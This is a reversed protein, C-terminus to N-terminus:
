LMVNDKIGNGYGHGPLKETVHISFTANKSANGYHDYSTECGSKGSKFEGIYQIGCHTCTLQYVYDQFKSQATNSVFIYISVYMYMCVYMCVYM